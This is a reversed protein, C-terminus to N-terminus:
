KYAVRDIFPVLIHFGAELTRSYKGLREIVFAENQPVIRIIKRLLLIVVAAVFLWVILGSSIFNMAVGQDNNNTRSSEDGSSSVNRIHSEACSSFGKRVGLLFAVRLDSER